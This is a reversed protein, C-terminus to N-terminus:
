AKSQRDNFYGMTEQYDKNHTDNSWFDSLNNQSLRKNCIDIYQPSIEFGIYKRNLQKCVVATTGSGMFCDLVIDNENSFGQVIKRYLKNPRSAPHYFLFGDQSQNINSEPNIIIDSYMIKRNIKKINSKGKTLIFALEVRNFFVTGPLSRQGQPKYWKLFHHFIFGTKYISKMVYYIKKDGTFVIVYNGPKIIRYLESIWKFCWESYKEDDINDDVNSYKLNVNYPPDTLILDVSNDEMQKMGEVCDINYIKNLEM